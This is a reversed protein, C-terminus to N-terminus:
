FLVIGAEFVPKKEYFKNRDYYRTMGYGGSAFLSFRSKVKYEVNVRAQLSYMREPTDIDENDFNEVHFYGLDGSIELRSGLPRYIGARYFLCGSFKDDLGLYHTGVGLMTYTHRNKFRVAANLKSTNGAFVMLQIRTLPNVNVLGLKHATTDKSHNVIGIQMGRVRGGCLNLLGVQVGNVEGAYNGPALQVGRATGQCVNTLGSLQLAGETRVAINVAGCLQLGSVEKAAINSLASLQLGKVLVGVNGIAALQAGRAQGGSINLISSLQLGNMEAASANMLGGIAVGNQREGAINALGAIQVGGAQGGAVNILGGVTLGRSAQGSVNGLGSMQFGDASGGAVNMLGSLMMGDANRGAVNAIGGLQLGSASRGTISALGSVQFGTMDRQVVSSVINIGVGRLRQINTLLGVNVYTTRVSDKKGQINLSINPGKKLRSERQQASTTLGTEALLGALLMAAIRASKNM